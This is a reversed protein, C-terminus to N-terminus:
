GARMHKRSLRICTYLNVRRARKECLLQYVHTLYAFYNKIRANISILETTRKIIIKVLFMKLIDPNKMYIKLQFKKNQNNM